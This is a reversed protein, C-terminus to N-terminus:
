DSSADNGRNMARMVLGAAEGPHRAMLTSAPEGSGIYVLYAGGRGGVVVSVPVPVSAAERGDVELRVEKEGEVMRASVGREALIRELERLRDAAQDGAATLGWLLALSGAAAREGEVLVAHGGHESDGHPIHLLYAGCAGVWGVSASKGGSPHLVVLRVDEGASEEAVPEPTPEGDGVRYYSLLHHAQLAARVRALPGDAVEPAHDGVVEPTMAETM